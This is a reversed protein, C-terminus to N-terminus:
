PPNAQEVRTQSLAYIGNESSMTEFLCPFATDLRQARGVGRAILELQGERGVERTEYLVSEKGDHGKRLVMGNSLVRRSM